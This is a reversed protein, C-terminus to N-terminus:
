KTGFTVKGLILDAKAAFPISVLAVISLTVISKTM